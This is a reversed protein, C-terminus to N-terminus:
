ALSYVWRPCFDLFHLLTFWALSKIGWKWVTAQCLKRRLETCLSELHSSSQRSAMSKERSNVKEFNGTNSNLAERKFKMKIPYLKQGVWALYERGKAQLRDGPLNWFPWPSFRPYLELSFHAKLEKKQSCVSLIREWNFIVWQSTLRKLSKPLMLSEKFCMLAARWPLVIVQRRFVRNSM